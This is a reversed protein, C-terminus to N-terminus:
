SASGVLFQPQPATERSAFSASTCSRIDIVVSLPEDRVALTIDGGNNM